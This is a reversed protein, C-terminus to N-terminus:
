RCKGGGGDASALSRARRKLRVDVHKAALRQRLREILWAGATDLNSIGSIDIITAKDGGAQEIGRMKDDVLHVSQSIWHGSLHIVRM